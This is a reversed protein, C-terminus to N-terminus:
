TRGCITRMRALISSGQSPSCCWDIGLMPSDYLVTSLLSCRRTLHACHHTSPLLQPTAHLWTSCPQTGAPQKAQGFEQVPLFFANHHTPPQRCSAELQPVHGVIDLSSDQLWAVWCVALIQAGGMEDLLLPISRATPGPKHFRVAPAPKNQSPKKALHEENPQWVLVVTPLAAFSRELVLFQILGSIRLHNPVLLDSKPLGNQSANKWGLTRLLLSALLTTMGLKLTCGHLSLWTPFSCPQQLHNMFNGKFSWVTRRESCKTVLVSHPSAVPRGHSAFSPHPGRTAMSDASFTYHTYLPINCNASPWVIHLTSLCMAHLLTRLTRTYIESM